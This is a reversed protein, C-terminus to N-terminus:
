ISKNQYSGAIDNSLKLSTALGPQLAMFDKTYTEITKDIQARSISSKEEIQTQTTIKSTPKDCAVM